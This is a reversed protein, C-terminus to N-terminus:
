SREPVSNRSWIFAASEDEVSLSCVIRSHAGNWAFQGHESETHPGFRKECASVFRDLFTSSAIRGELVGFQVLDLKGHDYVLSASTRWQRDHDLYSDICPYLHFEEGFCFLTCNATEFVTKGIFRSDLSQATAPRRGILKRVFGRKRFAAGKLLEPQLNQGLYLALENVVLRLDM